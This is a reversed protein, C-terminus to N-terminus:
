MIADPRRPQTALSVGSRSGPQCRWRSEPLVTVTTSSASRPGPANNYTGGFCAMALLTVALLALGCPRKQRLIRM